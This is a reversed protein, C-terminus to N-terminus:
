ASNYTHLFIEACCFSLFLTCQPTKFCNDKPPLLTPLKKREKEWKDINKFIRHTCIEKMIFYTKNYWTFLTLSFFLKSFCHVTAATEHQFIMLSHSHPSLAPTPTAPPFPPHHPLAEEGALGIQM